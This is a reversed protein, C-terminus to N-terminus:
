RVKWQAIAAPPGNPLSFELYSLVARAPVLFGVLGTRAASRPPLTGYALGGGDLRPVAAYVHGQDDVIWLAGPALAYPTNGTNRILLQAAVLRFGPAVPFGQAPDTLRQARVLLDIRSGGADGNVTVPQNLPATRTPPLITGNPPQDTLGAVPWRAQGVRITEPRFGADITFPVYGIVAQGPGLTITLPFLPYAPDATATRRATAGSADALLVTAPDFRALEGGPNRVRLGIRLLPQDTRPPIAAVPTIELAEVQQPRGSQGPSGTPSGTSAVSPTRSGTDGPLGSGRVQSTCGTAALVVSGAVLWRRGIRM